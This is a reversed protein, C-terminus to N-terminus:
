REAYKHLFHRRIFRTCKRQLKDCKQNEHQPYAVNRHEAVFQKCFDVFPRAKRHLQRKDLIREHNAAERKNTKHKEADVGAHRWARSFAFNCVDGLYKVDCVRHRKENAHFCCRHTERVQLREAAAREVGRRCRKNNRAKDHQEIAKQRDLLKADYHHPRFDPNATFVFREIIVYLLHDALISRISILNDRQRLLTHRFVIRVGYRM